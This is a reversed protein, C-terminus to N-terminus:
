DAGVDDSQDSNDIGDTSPLDFLCVVYGDTGGFLPYGDLGSITSQMNSPFHLTHTITTGTNSLMNQFQNVYRSGFSSDTLARFYIDTLGTCGKFASQLCRDGSVTTLAPLDITTLGTCDQFASQLGSRESVTTLASLDITTLGTCSQLAGTLGYGGSVTTLSSLDVSTLSTSYRFASALGYSGSVTTLSSLDVSTLGTCGSFAYQLANSGVDTVDNPLSFTFNTTPQQYVGNKVERPIGVGSSLPVDVTVSSFGDLNDSSANYTGNVTITKTGLTPEIVNGIEVDGTGDIAINEAAIGTMTNETINTEQTFPTWWRMGAINIYSQSLDVEGDWVPANGVSINCDQGISQNSTYSVDNVYDIGDLSYKLYYTSGDYGAKLWYISNEQVTYTGYHNTTNIFSGNRMVLFQWKKTAIGPNVLGIRFGSSTGLFDFASQESNLDNGTKIKTTVEWSNGAPSFTDNVLLYNDSSFNNVIGTEYNINVSGNAEFNDVNSSYPILSYDNGSKNIWVKNGESIASGTNNTSAVIDTSVLEGTVGLIEVDKKINSAVINNDISSTVAAVFIPSYGDTGSPAVIGQNLTSPVISLSEITPEVLVSATGYDAVNHTGNTTINITGSPQCYSKIQALSVKCTNDGLETAIYMNSNLTQATDLQTITKNAM